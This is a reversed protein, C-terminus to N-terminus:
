SVGFDTGRRAAERIAEALENEVFDNTMVNGSVNVTVSSSGGGENMRNLNEIGVSDVASRSMVFEGAEAEIMTGGQSHRRGGIMGGKAYSPAKQTAVATAQLGAIGTLLAAIITAALPDYDGYAKQIGSALDIAISGYAALQKSAFAKQRAPLTKAAAEKELKAM